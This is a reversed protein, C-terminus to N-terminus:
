GYRRHKIEFGNIFWNDHGMGTEENTMIFRVNEPIGMYKTDTFVDPRLHGTAFLVIRIYTGAHCRMYDEFLMVYTEKPNAAARKLFEKVDETFIGHYNFVAKVDVHMVNFGDEQLCEKIKQTPKKDNAGYTVATVAPNESLLDRKLAEKFEKKM